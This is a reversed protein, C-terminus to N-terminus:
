TSRSAQNKTKAEAAERMIDGTEMGERTKPEQSQKMARPKQTKTKEAAEQKETAQGKLSTWAM